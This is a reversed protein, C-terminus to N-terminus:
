QGRHRANYCKSKRVVQDNCMATNRPVIESKADHASRLGDVGWKGKARRTGTNRGPQGKVASHCGELVVDPATYELVVYFFLLYVLCTHKM